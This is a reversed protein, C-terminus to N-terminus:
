RIKVDLVAFRNARLMLKIQATGGTPCCNADNMRFLGTEATMTELDPWLGKRIQLGKPILKQVENEWSKSEILAWDRKERVYYESANGAGTGDVQIPLVLIQKGNLNLLKPKSFNRTGLENDIREFITRPAPSKTSSGILTMARQRHHRAEFSGDGCASAPAQAERQNPMLCFLQYSLTEDGVTGVEGSESIKCERVEDSGRGVKVGRLRACDTSGAYAEFALILVFFFLIYFVTVETTKKSGLCDGAFRGSTFYSAASQEFATLM